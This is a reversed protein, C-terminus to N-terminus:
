VARSRHFFGELSQIVNDRTNRYEVQGDFPLGVVCYTGIHHLIVVTRGILWAGIYIIRQVDNIDVILRTLLM